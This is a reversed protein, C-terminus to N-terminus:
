KIELSSVYLYTRFKSCFNPVHVPVSFNIDLLDSVSSDVTFIESKLLL